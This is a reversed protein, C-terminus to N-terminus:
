IKKSVIVQLFDGELGNEFNEKSNPFEVIKSEMGTIEDIMELFDAGGWEYTVLSGEENIPNGHYIPPLILERINGRMKIRPTTRKFPYLPTTFIHKGGKKLTRAIEALVKEPRNVHELVDQTIFIDFTENEFTLNELNQNTGNDQLKVGLPESEYWYSYTYQACQQKFMHLVDEIPSSEHIKQNRWDPMEDELVKMLARQRPISRCFLCRYYDRLWYDFAIFLTQEKCCPCVGGYIRVAKELNLAPIEEYLKEGLNDLRHESGRNSKEGINHYAIWMRIRDVADGRYDEIWSEINSYCVQADKRLITGIEEQEVMAIVFPYGRDRLDNYSYVPINGIFGIQKYNKDCYAYILNEMHLLRLFDYYQKGVRGAGYVIIQNEAISKKNM